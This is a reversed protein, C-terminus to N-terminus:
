GIGADDAAPRVHEGAPENTSGPAVMPRRGALMSWSITGAVGLPLTATARLLLVAAGAAVTGVGLRELLVVLVVDTAGLGFPLASFVGALIALGLVGWAAELPISAGLAAVVLMLQLAFCGLITGTTVVFALTQRPDALLRALTEDLEGLSALTRRVLGPRRTSGRAREGAGRGRGSRALLRGPRLGLRYLVPPALSGALALGWAVAAGGPPLELFVTAAAALASFAIVALAWFREAVIVAASRAYPVGHREKLVYARLVEGSSAPTLNNITNAFSVIPVLELFSLPHGVGAMLVRSRIAWLVVVAVNLLLAGAVPGLDLRGGLAALEWPRTRWVVFALLAASIPLWVYWRRM